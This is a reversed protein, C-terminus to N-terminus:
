DNRVEKLYSFIHSIVDVTWGNGIAKKRQNNSICDTYGIPLTQLQECEEPTYYRYDSESIAKRNQRSKVVVNDKEVTTLCNTKNDKRCEIYQSIKIDKNYDDRHGFENIRRGRMAAAYNNDGIISHININKDTPQTVGPINTWYLRKRDQASVLRSNIRVPSVGLHESITIECEKEMNVNELLFYKPQVEKMIRIYEFFLISREDKFNLQKGAFSFGQCPPGGILLDISTKAAGNNSFLCGNRYFVGTIDGLQLTDPYNSQTVQIAYKDIESAYYKDIKVGARELALQGCSIGDFLSLVNM